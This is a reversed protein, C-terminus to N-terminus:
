LGCLYIIQMELGQLPLHQADLSRGAVNRITVTDIQKTGALSECMSYPVM